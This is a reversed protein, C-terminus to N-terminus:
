SRHRFSCIVSLGPSPQLDLDCQFQSLTTFGLCFGSGVTCPFSHWRRRLLSTNAIDVIRVSLLVPSQLSLKENLALTVLLPCPRRGLPSSVTTLLAKLQGGGWLDADKRVLSKINLFTPYIMKGQAEWTCAALDGRM